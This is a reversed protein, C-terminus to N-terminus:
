GFDFLEGFPSNKRKHPERQERYYKARRHDDRRNEDRFKGRNAASGEDGQVAM